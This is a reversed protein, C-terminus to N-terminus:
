KVVEGVFRRAIVVEWDAGLESRKRQECTLALWEGSDDVFVGARRLADLIPKASAYLNDTDMPRAAYGRCFLLGVPCTYTPRGPGLVLGYVMEGYRKRSAWHTRLFGDPGNPGKARLGRVTLKHAIRGDALTAAHWFSELRTATAQKSSM